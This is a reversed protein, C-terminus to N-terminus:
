PDGDFQDGVTAREPALFVHAVLRLCRESCPQEIPRDLARHRALLAQPHVGLAVRHLQLEPRAAVGVSGERRQFNAADAIRTRVRADAHLHQLAGGSMRAARIAPLREVDLGDGHSRVVEHTSREAPETRVLRLEGGLTHEVPEGLLDADGAPLDALAVHDTGAVLPTRALDHVVTGNCRALRDPESEPQLVRAEAVTETLHGFRDDVEDRRDTFRRAADLDAM